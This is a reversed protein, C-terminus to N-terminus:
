EIFNRMQSWCTVFHLVHGRRRVLEQLALYGQDKTAVVVTLKPPARALRECLFWVLEVDAANREGGTARHVKIFEGDVPPNVGFGNFARDAFAHVEVASAAAYFVLERLCDHINGLDVVALTNPPAGTEDSTTTKAKVHPDVLSWLPPVSADRRLRLADDGDEFEDGGSEELISYLM